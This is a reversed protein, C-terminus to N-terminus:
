LTRGYRLEEKNVACRWYEIRGNLDRFPEALTINYISRKVYPKIPSGDEDNDIEVIRDKETPNVYNKFYYIIYPVNMIAFETQDLLGGQGPPPTTIRRRVKHLEEAYLWGSGGCIDCDKDPEDYKRKDIKIQLDGEGQENWCSCRQQTNMRRLLVWHGRQPDCGTGDILEKFEQRLNLENSTATGKYLSTAKKGTITGPWLDMSM